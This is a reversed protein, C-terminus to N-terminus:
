IENLRESSSYLRNVLRAIPKPWLESLIDLTEGTRINEALNRSTASEEYIRHGMLIKDVYLFRGPQSALRVWTKYDCSDRLTTDFVSPGTLEKNILVAPCCIPCGFGLVRRKVSRRGNLSRHKFPANMLRKIRLMKNDTVNGAKRMEFYDSFAIAVEGERYANLGKLMMELYQSEYRDDQHAITVLRTRAQDFGYNWDDGAYHPHANVVLEIGHRRCIDEIYPSPTSTSLLINGHASQTELSRVTEELYPNDRYACIVFTHDSATYMGVM